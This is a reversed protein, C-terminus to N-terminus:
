KLRSHDLAHMGNQTGADPTKDYKIYTKPKVETLFLFLYKKICYAVMDFEVKYRISLLLSLFKYLNSLISTFM